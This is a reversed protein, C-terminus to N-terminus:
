ERERVRVATVPVEASRLVKEATSGLLGGYRGHYGSGIVVLDVDEEQSYENIEEHVRPGVEIATVAEVGADAARTAVEDTIEQGYERAPAIQDEMSERAWPNGGEEVVYLVHLTAGVAAALDIAHDVGREAETSGDTPVLIREYM